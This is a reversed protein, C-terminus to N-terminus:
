YVAVSIYQKIEVPTLEVNLDRRSVSPIEGYDLGELWEWGVEIAAQQTTVLNKEPLRIIGMERKIQGCATAYFYPIIISLSKRPM